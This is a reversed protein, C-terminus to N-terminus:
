SVRSREFCLNVGEYGGAGEGPCAERAQQGGFAYPHEDFAAEVSERVLWGGREM